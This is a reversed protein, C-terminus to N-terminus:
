EHEDGGGASEADALPLILVFRAGGSPAPAPDVTLRGGHELAIKKCITLGLGTGQEKGTVYPEFIKDRRDEAVGPGEDDVFLVAREDDPEAHWRVTVRGPAGADVGAHIGNEVLNALVRRLLMRDGRVMTPREPPVLELQDRVTPDKTLDSVVEGLDLPRADVRPLQGLTRFADVLRRLSDIEETVIEEADRLMRQYRNDEGRYSSVVQQVALQIPTLPNKIEHALKRAVDQWAGIRQLYAIQERDTALQGVMRDFAWSLEALEDRGPLAVRSGLDGAAVRRTGQVLAEIRATFRRALIIGTLSILLIVMGVLVWFAARYSSPLATRVDDFRDARRLARQLAVYGDELASSAAFTLAVEARGAPAGGSVQGAVASAPSTPAPVPARVTVPRWDGDGLQGRVDLRRDGDGDLVEVRVLEPTDAVFQTLRAQAAELVRDPGAPVVGADAGPRDRDRGDGDGDAASGAAATVEAAAAADTGVTDAADTRRDSNPAAVDLALAVEPLAAVRLAVQRYYLDRKTAILEIYLQRAQELHPRLFATENTAFNHAIQGTQEILLAAVVLPVMAVALLVAVLKVQLGVRRASASTPLPAPPPKSM